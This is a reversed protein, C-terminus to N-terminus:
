PGLTAALEAFPALTRSPLGRLCLPLVGTSQPLPPLNLTGYTL